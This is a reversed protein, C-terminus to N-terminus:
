LTLILNEPTRLKLRLGYQLCYNLVQRYAQVDNNVEICFVEVGLKRLDMQKMIKIDVNEADISVFTFNGTYDKRIESLLKAFDWVDTVSDFFENNTGEWRKLSDADLSSLLASDDKGLHPGSEKFNVNDANYDSIAVNFAAVKSNFGNFDYLELIKSYATKSPEVLVGSWGKLLLARSNSLTVGDNAGIDLVFGKRDKFYNLLFDEEGNQSYYRM